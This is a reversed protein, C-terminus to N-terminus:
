KQGNTRNGFVKEWLYIVAPVAFLGIGMSIAVTGTFNLIALVDQLDQGPNGDYRVACLYLGVGVFLAM